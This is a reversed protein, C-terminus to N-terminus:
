VGDDEMEDFDELNAMDDGDEDDFDGEEDDFDGEEDGEGEEMDEDM